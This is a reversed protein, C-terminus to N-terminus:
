LPAFEAQDTEPEFHEEEYLAALYRRLYPIARELRTELTNIVVVRGDESQAILGGWCDLNYNIPLTLGLDTL